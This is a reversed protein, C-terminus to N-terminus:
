PLMPNDFAMDPCAIRNIKVQTTKYVYGTPTHDTPLGYPVWPALVDSWYKVQFANVWNTTLNDFVGSVSLNASMEGNLFSQLVSVQNSDNVQGERM